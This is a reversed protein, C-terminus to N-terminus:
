NQFCKWRQVENILCFRRALSLVDAAVRCDFWIYYMCIEYGFLTHNTIYLSLIFNTTTTTTTTKKRTRENQLNKGDFLPPTISRNNAQTNIVSNISERNWNMGKEKCRDKPTHSLVRANPSVLLSLRWIHTYHDSKEISLLYSWIHIISNSIAAAVIACITRKPWVYRSVIQTHVFLSWKEIKINKLMSFLKCNQQIFLYLSLTIRYSKRISCKNSKNVSNNIRNHLCNLSYDHRKSSM